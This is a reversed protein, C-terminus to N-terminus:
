AHRVNWQRSGSSNGQVNKPPSHVSHAVSKGEEVGLSSADVMGSCCAYRTASKDCPLVEDTMQNPFNQREGGTKFQSCEFYADWHQVCLM